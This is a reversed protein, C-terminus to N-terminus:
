AVRMAQLAHIMVSLLGQGSVGTRLSCVHMGQHQLLPGRHEPIELSRIIWGWQLHRCYDMLAPHLITRGKGKVQAPQVIGAEPSCDGLTM